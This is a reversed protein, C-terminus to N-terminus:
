KSGAPRDLNEPVHYPRPTPMPRAAHRAAIEQIKPSIKMMQRQTLEASREMLTPMKSVFAKGVPSQYFAILGALEDETFLDAYLKVYEPKVREWSFEEEILKMIEAQVERTKEADAASLNMSGLQAKQMRKAAAFSQEISEQVNMAALAEEARQLHESEGAWAVSGCVVAMALFYSKM